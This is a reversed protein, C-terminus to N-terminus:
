VPKVKSSQSSGHLKTNTNMNIRHRHVPTGFVNTPKHTKKLVTIMWGISKHASDMALLSM